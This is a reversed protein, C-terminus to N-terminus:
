PNKLQIKYESGNIWVVLHLSANSGSTPSTVLTGNLNLRNNYKLTIDQSSDKVEIYTNNNLNAYDGFQYIANAYNLKLGNSTGNHEIQFLEIDASFRATITYSNINDLASIYNEGFTIVSNDTVIAIRQYNATLYVDENDDKYLYLNDYDLNSIANTTSNYLRISQDAAIHGNDLVSQLNGTGGGSYTVWSQSGPTGEARKILVNHSDFRITGLPYNNASLDLDSGVLGPSENFNIVQNFIYM